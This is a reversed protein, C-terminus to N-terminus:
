MSGASIPYKRITRVKLLLSPTLELKGTLHGLRCRLHEETM